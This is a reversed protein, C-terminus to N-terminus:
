IDPRCAQPCAGRAVSQLPCATRVHHGGEREYRRKRPPFHWGQGTCPTAAACEARVRNAGAGDAGRASPTIRRADLSLQLVRQGPVAGGTRACRAGARFLDSRGRDRRHLGGERRALGGRGRVEGGYPLRLIYLCERRDGPGRRSALREGAFPLQFVDAGHTTGSRGATKSGEAFFLWRLDCEASQRLEGGVAAAFVLILATWLLGIRRRM